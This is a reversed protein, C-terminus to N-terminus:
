TRKHPTEHDSIDLNTLSTEFKNEAHNNWKLNEIKNGKKVSIGLVRGDGFGNFM